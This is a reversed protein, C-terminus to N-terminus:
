CSGCLAPATPRTRSWVPKWSRPLVARTSDTTDPVLGAELLAAAVTHRLDDASIGVAEPYGLLSVDVAITDLGILQPQITQAGAAGLLCGLAMAIAWKKM